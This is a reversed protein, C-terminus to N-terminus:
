SRRAAARGPRRPRDGVGARVDRSRRACGDPCAGVADRVPERERNGPRGGVRLRRRHGGGRRAGGARLGLPSPSRDHAQLRRRTAGPERSERRRARRTASPCTTEISAVPLGCDNRLTGFARRIHAQERIAVSRATTRRPTARSARPDDATEVSRDAPRPVSAPTSARRTSRRGRTSPTRGSCRAGLRDRGHRRAADPARVPRGDFDITTGDPLLLVGSPLDVTVEADPDAELMEFLRAHTEPDVVIPLLATRSRTTASSTRSALDLHDGPHGVRHAGVARARAVLRGRLQRRGAPDTRGQMEPRNSCSRRTKRSQRGRRLALRQVARRRPGGQETTKLFRAPIIQDTDVNEAPLPIVRAAHVDHFPEPM